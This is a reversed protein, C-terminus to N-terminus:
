RPTACLNEISKVLLDGAFSRRAYLPRGRRESEVLGAEVFAAVSTSLWIAVGRERDAPPRKDAKTQKAQATRYRNELEKWAVADGKVRKLIESSKIMDKSHPPLKLFLQRKARAGATDELLDLRFRPYDVLRVRSGRDKSERKRWDALSMGALDRKDEEHGHALRFPHDMPAHAIPPNSEGRQVYQVRVRLRDQHDQGRRTRRPSLSGAVAAILPILLVYSEPAGTVDWTIEVEDFHEKEIKEAVLSRVKQVMWAIMGGYHAVDQDEESYPNVPEIKFRDTYVRGMENKLQESQQRQFEEWEPSRAELPVLVEHPGLEGLGTAIRGVPDGPWCICVKYQRM